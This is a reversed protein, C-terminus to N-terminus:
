LIARGHEACLHQYIRNMRAGLDGPGCPRTSLGSWLPDQLAKREVVYWYAQWDQRVDLFQRVASEVAKASLRFFHEARARGLDAALRSKVPSYGPTKVLIAIAGAM